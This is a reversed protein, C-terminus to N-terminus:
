EKGRENLIGNNASEPFVKSTSIDKLPTIINQIVIILMTSTIEQNM